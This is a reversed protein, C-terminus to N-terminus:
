GIVEPIYYYGEKDKKYFKRKRPIIKGSIFDINITEQTGEDKYSCVVTMPYKNHGCCCGLTKVFPTNQFLKNLRLILNGMCGDVKPSKIVNGRKNHIYIRKSNRKNCM